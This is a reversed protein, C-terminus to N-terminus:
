TVSFLTINVPLIDQKREFGISVDIQYEHFIHYLRPTKEM